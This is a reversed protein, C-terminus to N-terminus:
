NFEFVGLSHSQTLQKTQMELKHRRAQSEWVRLMNRRTKELFDEFETARCRQKKAHFMIWVAIEPLQSPTYVACWAIPPSRTNGYWVYHAKKLEQLIIIKLRETKIRGALMLTHMIDRATDGPALGLSTILIAPRQSVFSRMLRQMISYCLWVCMLNIKAQIGRSSPVRKSRAGM